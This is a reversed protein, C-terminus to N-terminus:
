TNQLASGTLWAHAWHQDLSNAKSRMYEQAEAIRRMSVYADAYDSGPYRLSGNVRVYFLATRAKRLVFRWTASWEDGKDVREVTFTDDSPPCHEQVARLLLPLYPAAKATAPSIHEM